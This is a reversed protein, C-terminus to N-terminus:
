STMSFNSDNVHQALEGKLRTQSALSSFLFALRDNDNPM